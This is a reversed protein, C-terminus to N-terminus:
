PQGKQARDIEDALSKRLSIVVDGWHADRERQVEAAFVAIRDPLDPKDQAFWDAVVIRARERLDASPENMPISNQPM